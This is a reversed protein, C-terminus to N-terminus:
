DPFTVREVAEQWVGRLTGGVHVEAFFEFEVAEEDAEFVEFAGRGGFDVELAGKGGGGVGGDEFAGVGHEVGEVGHVDEDGFVRAGGM